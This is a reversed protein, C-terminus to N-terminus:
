PPLSSWNKNAVIVLQFEPKKFLEQMPYRIDYSNFIPQRKALQRYSAHCM